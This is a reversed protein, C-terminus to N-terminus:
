PNWFGKAGPNKLAEKLIVHWATGAVSAGASFSYPLERTAYKIGGDEKLKEMENVIEKARTANGLRLHALAVGFSGESWVFPFDEWTAEPQEPLLFQQVGSDIYIPEKHYPRYGRVGRHENAYIQDATEVAIKATEKEGRAMLFLAGWSACDLAIDRNLTGDEKLGTAFQGAGCFYTGDLELFVPRMHGILVTFHRRSPQHIGGAAAGHQRALEAMKALIELM